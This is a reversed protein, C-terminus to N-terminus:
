PAWVVRLDPRKSLIFRVPLRAPDGPESAEELVERKKEGEIHLILERAGAIVPATLTVRTEGADPANMAMLVHKCDDASAKGLNDGGPFLSATHGDTGMGLVLVDFPLLKAVDKSHDSIEEAMFNESYLPLFHAKAAKDQLLELTVLKQNSRNSGPAVWREDVLTIWVSEWQIDRASLLKFFRLPTSGGSVALTANGKENIAAALKDAVRGALWEALVEGNDFATFHM